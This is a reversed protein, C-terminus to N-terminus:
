NFSPAYLKCNVPSSVWTGYKDNQLVLKGDAKIEVVKALDNFNLVYDNVYFKM